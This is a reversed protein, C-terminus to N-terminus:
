GPRGRLPRRKCARPNVGYMANVVLGTIGIITMIM